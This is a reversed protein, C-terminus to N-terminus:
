SNTVNDVIAPTVCVGSPGFEARPLHFANWRGHFVFLIYGHLRIRHMYGAKSNWASIQRIEIWRQSQRRSVSEWGFGYPSLSLLNYLLWSFFYCYSHDPILNASDLLFLEIPFHLSHWFSGMFLTVCRFECKFMDSGENELRASCGRSVSCDIQAQLHKYGKFLLHKFDGTAQRHCLETCQLLNVKSKRVAEKPYKSETDTLAKWWYLVVIGKRLSLAMISQLVPLSCIRTIWKTYETVAKM